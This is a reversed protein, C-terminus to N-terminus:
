EEKPPPIQVTVNKGEADTWSGKPGEFNLLAQVRDYLDDGKKWYAEGQHEGDVYVPSYNAALDAFRMNLLASTRYASTHDGQCLISHLIQLAKEDRPIVSQGKEVAMNFYRDVGTAPVDDAYDGFVRLLAKYVELAKKATAM